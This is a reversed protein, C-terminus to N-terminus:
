TTISQEDDNDQPWRLLRRNLRVYCRRALPNLRRCGWRRVRYIFRSGLSTLLDSLVLDGDLYSVVSTASTLKVPLNVLTKVLIVLLNASIRPNSQM